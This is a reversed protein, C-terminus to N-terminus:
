FYSAFNQIKSVQLVRTGVCSLVFASPVFVYNMSRIPKSGVMETNSRSILSWVCKSVSPATFKM